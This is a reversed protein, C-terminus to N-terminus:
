NGIFSSIRNTIKAKYREQAAKMCIRCNKKKSGPYIYTNEPTFPHDCKRWKTRGSKVFNVGPRSAYWALSTTIQNQRKPSMIPFLMKMLAEARMGYINLRHYINGRVEKRSFTSINGGLLKHLRDIPERQVQVASIVITGGNRYFSGEGELFGAAWYLDNISINIIGVERMRHM